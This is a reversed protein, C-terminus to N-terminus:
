EVTGIYRNYATTGLTCSGQLTLNQLKTGPPIPDTASLTIIGTIRGSRGGTPDVLIANQVPHTGVGCGTADIFTVPGGTYILKDAPGEPPDPQNSDAPILFVVTDGSELAFALNSGLVIGLTVTATVLATAVIRRMHKGGETRTPREDRFDSLDGDYL